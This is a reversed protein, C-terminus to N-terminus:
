LLLEAAAGGILIIALLILLVFPARIEYEPKRDGMTKAKHFMLMVLIGEVAGTVGGVVGVVAIFERFGLLFLALPVGLAVLAAPVYPFSFDHRLSNKLYNGIVLFSDAIVLLGILAGFAIISQGLFPVLGSFADPSTALGSVGVVLLAFLLFFAMVLVSSWVIVNDLKTRARRDRLFSMVEPIAEFGAFAFLLVGFPLFLNSLSSVDFLPAEFNKIHPLALVLLAAIAAIFLINTFFEIKTIIQRGSLVLFFAGISFLVAFATSSFLSFSGLVIESFEGVLILYALLTGVLVFVLTCTAIAKGWKGLYIGAYGVLRHKGATRLCVEGFFLHLLCILAGLLFLYFLGPVIGSKVMVFPIGFIGAGVITGVLTSLALTFSNM